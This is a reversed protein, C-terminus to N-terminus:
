IVALAREMGSIPALLTVKDMVQQQSVLHKLNNFGHFIGGHHSNILSIFFFTCFRGLKHEIWIEM